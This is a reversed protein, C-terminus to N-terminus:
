CSVLLLAVLSWCTVLPLGAFSGCSVLLLAVLSWCEGEIHFVSILQKQREVMQLTLYDCLHISKKVKIFFVVSQINVVTTKSVYM